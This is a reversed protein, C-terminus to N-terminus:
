KKSRKLDAKAWAELNAKAGSVLVTCAALSSNFFYDTPTVLTSEDTLYVWAINSFRISDFTALEIVKKKTIVFGNYEIHPKRLAKELISIKKDSIKIDLSFDKKTM